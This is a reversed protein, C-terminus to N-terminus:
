DSFSYRGFLNVRSSLNHDVRADFQDTRNREIPVNVFNNDIQGPTGTNPAPNADVFKQGVPDILSQPIIWCNGKGDNCDATAPQRFDQGTDTANFPNSIPITFQGKKWM